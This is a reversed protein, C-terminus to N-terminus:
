AEGGEEKLNAAAQLGSSTKDGDGKDTREQPLPKVSASLIVPGDPLVAVSLAKFVKHVHHGFSLLEAWFICGQLFLLRLIVFGGVQTLVTLRCLLEQVVDVQSM